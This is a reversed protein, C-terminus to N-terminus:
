ALKFNYKSIIYEVEKESLSFWERNDDIRKDNYEEHIQLEKDDELIAILEIHINCTKMSSLRQKLRSTQGIKYINSATDKIIYTYIPITKNLIVKENNRNIRIIGSKRLKPTKLENLEKKFTLLKISIRLARYSAFQIFIFDLIKLEDDSIFGDKAFLAIIESDNSSLENSFVNLNNKICIVDIDSSNLKIRLHFISDDAYTILEYLKENKSNTHTSNNVMDFLMKEKM